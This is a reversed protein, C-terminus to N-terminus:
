RARLHGAQAQPRVGHPGGVLLSHARRGLEDLGRRARGRDRPHTWARWLRGAGPPHAGRRPRLDHRGSSRPQVPHSWPRRRSRRRTHARDSRGTSRQPGEARVLLRRAVRARHRRRALARALHGRLAAPQRSRRQHRHDLRRGVIQQDANTWAFPINGPAPVFPMQGLGVPATLALGRAFVHSNTTAAVSIADPATSPSGVTGLGFLERDNGASIVPVVGANVVNTVVQVMPDRAPDSQPGGGSFNVVDM